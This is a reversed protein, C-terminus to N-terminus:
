IAMKLNLHDVVFYMASTRNRHTYSTFTVDNASITLLALLV